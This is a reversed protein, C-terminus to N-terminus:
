DFDSLFDDDYYSNLISYIIGRLKPQSNVMHDIVACVALFQVTSMRVKESELNNLSQRTLGVIDSFEQVGLDLVQRIQKLSEQMCNVM